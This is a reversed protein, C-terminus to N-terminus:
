DVIKGHAHRWAHRAISGFSSALFAAWAGLVGCSLTGVAWGAWGISNGIILALFAGGFVVGSLAGVLLSWQPWHSVRGHNALPSRPPLASRSAETPHLDARPADDTLNPNAARWHVLVQSTDRLRTGVLTGFVHAAVLAATVGIVLPWPGDTLVLLACLVSLMTVMFFLQRLRFRLLHPERPPAPSQTIPM